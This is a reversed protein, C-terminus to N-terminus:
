AMSTHARLTGVRMQSRRIQPATTRIREIESNLPPLGFDGQNELGRRNFKFAVNGGLMGGRGLASLRSSVTQINSLREFDLPMLFSQNQLFSKQMLSAHLMAGDVRQDAAGRSRMWKHKWARFNPDDTTTRDRVGAVHFRGGMSASCEAPKSTGRTATWVEPQLNLGSSELPAKYMKHGTQMTASSATAIGRRGWAKKLASSQDGDAKAIGMSAFGEELPAIPTPERHCSPSRRTRLRSPSLRSARGNDSPAHCSATSPPAATTAQGEWRKSSRAADSGASPSISLSIHLGRSAGEDCPSRRRGLKTSTSLDAQEAENQCTNATKPVCPSSLSSAMASTSAGLGDKRAFTRLTPYGFLTKTVLNDGHVAQLAVKEPVNRPADPQISDIGRNKIAFRSRGKSALEWVITYGDESSSTVRDNNMDLATIAMHHANLACHARLHNSIDWVCLSADRSGSAVFEDTAAICNIAQVGQRFVMICYADEFRWIRVTADLGGTAMVEGSPTFALCLVDGNHGDLPRSRDSVYPDFKDISWIRPFDGSAISAVHPYSSCITHVPGVHGGCFWLCVEKSIDWVRLKGDFSGSIVTSQAALKVSLVSAGKPHAMDTGNQPQMTEYFSCVEIGSDLRYVIVCGRSTGAAVMVDSTDFATWVLGAEETVAPQVAAVANSSSRRPFSGQSLQEYVSGLYQCLEKIKIDDSHPHMVKSSLRRFEDDTLGLSKMAKSSALASRGVAGEENIPMSPIRELFASHGLQLKKLLDDSLMHEAEDADVQPPSFNFLLGSSSSDGLVLEWIKLSDPALTVIRGSRIQVALINCPQNAPEQPGRLVRSAFEQANWGNQGTQINVSDVAGRQREPSRTARPSPARPGPARLSSLASQRSPSLLLPLERLQPSTQMVASRVPTDHLTAGISLDHDSRHRLLGQMRVPPERCVHHPLADLLLTQVPVGPAALLHGDTKSASRGKDHEVAHSRTRAPTDHTAAAPRHAVAPGHEGGSRAPSAAARPFDLGCNLDVVRATRRGTIERDRPPAAEVPAGKHM